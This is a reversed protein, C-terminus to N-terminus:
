NIARLVFRVLAQSFAAIILGVIAYILINKASTINSTSSEGAATIYKFGAFIIMIVAVIGIIVSFINIVNRVIGILSIDTDCESGTVADIGKCVAEKPNDAFATQAPSLALVAVVLLSTVSLLIVSLLRTM